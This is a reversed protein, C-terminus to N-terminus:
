DGCSEPPLRRLAADLVEVIGRAARLVADERSRMHSRETPRQHDLGSLHLVGHIVLRALEAAARVKFRRAQERMRDLSIVLDGDVASEGTRSPRLTEGPGAEGYAFSLVDTARDIGRWERNLTRMAADDTLVVAIEGPRRGEAARTARILTRLPAALARTGRPGTLTIAM